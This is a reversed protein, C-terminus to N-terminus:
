EAGLGWECMKRRDGGREVRHQRLQGIGGAHATQWDVDHMPSEVPHKWGLQRPLRMDCQCACAGGYRQTFDIVEAMGVRAFEVLRNQAPNCRGGSGRRRRLSRWWCMPADPGIKLM